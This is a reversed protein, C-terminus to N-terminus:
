CRPTPTASHLETYPGECGQWRLRTCGERHWPDPVRSFSCRYPCCYSGAACRASCRCSSHSGYGACVSRFTRTRNRASNLIDHPAARVETPSPTPALTTPAPTTPAATAAPKATARATPAVTKQASTLVALGGLVLLSNTALRRSFSSSRKGGASSSRPM